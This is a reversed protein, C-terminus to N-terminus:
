AEASGNGGGQEPPLTAAINLMARALGLADGRTFYAAYKRAVHDAVREVLEPAQLSAPRFSETADALKCAYGEAYGDDWGLQYSSAESV